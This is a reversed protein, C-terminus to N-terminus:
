EYGFDKDSSYEAVEELDAWNKGRKVEITIPVDVMPYEELPSTCMIRAIGHQWRDVCREPAFFSLDDHIEFLVPYGSESCVCMAHKQIESAFGQVGYNFIDNKSMPGYARRGSLMTIYGHRNYEEILSDQWGKVGPFEAWFADNARVAYKEDVQMYGALSRISAGFFEPFVWKNKAWDRVVKMIAKDESEGSQEAAFDFYGPVEDVFWEAWEMHIDLGNWLAHIYKEDGSATAIVRAEIQGFDFALLEYGDPAAIVARIWANKRRPWNQMNPDQWSTRSTETFKDNVSPHLCGDPYMHRSILPEIYTSLLKAKERWELISDCIGLNMSSLVKEDFSHKTETQNTKKNRREVVIEPRDLMDRFLFMMDEDKSPDFRRGFRKRFKKAERSSLISDFADAVENQLRREFNRVKDEQIPIGRSISDVIASSRRIHREYSPFLSDPMVEMIAQYLDLCGIADIGNYPLIDALPETHMASMNLPPTLSKLNYGLRAVSQWELSLTGKRTDMVYAAAMSDGWKADLVEEGFEWLAWEMEMQLNHAIKRPGDVHFEKLMGKLKKKERITWPADRHNYPFAVCYTPSAIAMTSLVAGKAYPRLPWSEYDIGVIEDDWLHDLAREVQNLRVPMQVDSPAPVAISPEVYDNEIFDALLNLDREFTTEEDPTGYKLNKQVRFIYSPHTVPMAWCQHKGVQVPVLRGRWRFISDVAPNNIIRQTAIRGVCLIVLPKTREIDAEVRHWCCQIEVETPDRNEPPRCQVSNGLRVDFGSPLRSRLFEGSRGVFAEGLKDEEAGPAEGVVYIEPRESGSPKMKPTHLAVKDLPCVECSRSRLTEVPIHPRKEAAPKRGEQNYFFGM